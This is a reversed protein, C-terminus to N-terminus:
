NPVSNNLAPSARQSAAIEEVSTGIRPALAMAGASSTKNPTAPSSARCISLEIM